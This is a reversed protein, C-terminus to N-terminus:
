PKWQVKGTELWDLHGLITDNMDIYPSFTTEGLYPVFPHESYPDFCWTTIILTIMRSMVHVHIIIVIVIHDVLVLLQGGRSGRMRSYM